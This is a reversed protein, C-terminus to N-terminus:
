DEPGASFLTHVSESRSHPSGGRAVGSGSGDDDVSLKGKGTVSKGSASASKQSSVRRNLSVKGNNLETFGSGGKGKAYDAALAKERADLAALTSEAEAQELAEATLPSPQAASTPLVGENSRFRTFFPVRGSAPPSALSPPPTSSTPNAQPPTRYGGALTTPAPTEIGMLKMTALMRERERRDNADEVTEIKRAIAPTIPAAANLTLPRFKDTKADPTPASSGGFISTFGKWDMSMGRKGRKDAASDAAGPTSTTTIMAPATQGTEATLTTSTRSMASPADPAPTAEGSAELADSKPAAFFLSKPRPKTAPPQPQSTSSAVAQATPEKSVKTSPTPGSATKSPGANRKKVPSEYDAALVHEFGEQSIIRDIIKSAYLSLAKNADKLNKVETRLTTMEESEMRPQEQQATTVRSPEVRGELIDKNEARGLEAALDLGPGTIPLDGLSEGRIVPSGTSTRAAARRSRKSHKSGPSDDRRSSESPAVAVEDHEPVVDLTTSRSMSRAPRDDGFNMSKQIPTDEVSAGFPDEEEDPSRTGTARMIDFRGSLTRERLLINYSENEEQLEKNITKFDNLETQLLHLTNQTSAHSTSLTALEMKLATMEAPETAEEEAPATEPKPLPNRREVPVGQEEENTDDETGLSVNKRHTVPSQRISARRAHSLSQIRSKLHQESDYFAQREAEFTATQENYRRAFDRKEKELDKVQIRLKDIVGLKAAMDEEMRTQDAYLEALRSEAVSLSSTLNKNDESTNGITQEHSQIRLLLAEKEETERKLAAAIADRSAKELEDDVIPPPSVVARASARKAAPTSLPGPRPSVVSRATAGGRIAASPSSKGSPPPPTSSGSPIRRTTAAPSRVTTAPSSM